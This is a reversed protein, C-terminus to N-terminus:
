PEHPPAARSSHKWLSHSLPIKEGKDRLQKESQESASLPTRRRLRVATAVGIALGTVIVFAAAISSLSLRPSQVTHQELVNHQGVELLSVFSAVTATATATAPLASQM